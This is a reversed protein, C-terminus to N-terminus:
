RHCVSHAKQWAPCRERLPRHHWHRKLNNGALLGVFVSLSVQRVFVSTNNPVFRRAQNDLSEKTSSSKNLPSSAPLLSVPCIKSVASESSVPATYTFKIIIHHYQSASLGSHSCPYRLIMMGPTDLFKHYKCRCIVRLMWVYM